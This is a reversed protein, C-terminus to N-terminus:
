PLLPTPPMQLHFCHLGNECDSSTCTIKLPKLPKKTDQEVSM